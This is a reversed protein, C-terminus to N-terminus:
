FYIIKIVNKGDGNLGRVSGEVWCDGGQQEHGHTRNRKQELGGSRVRGWWYSDDTRWRHTQKQKLTTVPSTTATKGLKGLM